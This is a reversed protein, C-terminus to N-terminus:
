GRSWRRSTAFCSWVLIRARPSWGARSRGRGRQTTLAPGNARHVVLHRCRRPLPASARGHVRRHRTAHMRVALHVSLNSRVLRARRLPPVIPKTTSSKPRRIMIPIKPLLSHVSGHGHHARRLPALPVYPLRIHHYKCLLQYQYQLTRSINQTISM